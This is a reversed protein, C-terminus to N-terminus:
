ETANTKAGLELLAIACSAGNERAAIHIPMSGNIFASDINAGAQEVLHHITSTLAERLSKDM